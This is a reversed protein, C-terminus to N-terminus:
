RIKKNSSNSSKSEISKSRSKEKLSSTVSSSKSKGEFNEAKFEPSQNKDENPSDHHKFETYDDLRLENSEKKTENDLIAEQDKRIYKVDISNGKNEERQGGGINYKKREKVDKLQFGTKEKDSRLGNQLDEESGKKFDRPLESKRGSFYTETKSKEIMNRMNKSREIKPLEKMKM